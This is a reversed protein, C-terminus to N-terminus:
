SLAERIYFMKMRVRVEDTHIKRCQTHTVERLYVYQLSAKQRATSKFHLLLPLSTLPGAVPNVARQSASEVVPKEGQGGGSEDGQLM